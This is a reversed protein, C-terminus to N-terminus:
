YQRYLFEEYFCYKGPSFVAGAAKKDIMSAKTFLEQAEELKGQDAKVIGKYLYAEQHMPNKKLIRDFYPEAGESDGAELLKKGQNLWEETDLFERQEEM